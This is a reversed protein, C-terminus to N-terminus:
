YACLRVCVCVVCVIYVFSVFFKVGVFFYVCFVRM